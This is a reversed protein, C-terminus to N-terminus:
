ALETLDEQAPGAADPARFVPGADLLDQVINSGFAREAADTPAAV